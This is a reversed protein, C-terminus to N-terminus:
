EGKAQLNIQWEHNPDAIETMSQGKPTERMILWGTPTQIRTMLFGANNADITEIDALDYREPGKDSKAIYVVNLSKSKNM